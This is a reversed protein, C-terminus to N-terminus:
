MMETYFKGEKKQTKIDIGGIHGRGFLQVEHKEKYSYFQSHFLSICAYTSICNSCPNMFVCLDRINFHKSGLIWLGINMNYYGHDLILHLCVSGWRGPEFFSIKCWQLYVGYLPLRQQVGRTKVFCCGIHFLVSFKIVVMLLMLCSFCDITLNIHGM